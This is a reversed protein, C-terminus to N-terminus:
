GVAAGRRRASLKTGVRRDATTFLCRSTKSMERFHQTASTLAMTVQEFLWSHRGFHIANTVWARSDARRMAREALGLRSEEARARLLARERRAEKEVADRGRVDFEGGPGWFTTAM